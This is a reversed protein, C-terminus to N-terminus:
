RAVEVTITTGKGLDSHIRFRGGIAGARERMILLGWGQPQKANAPDALVMGRGNDAVRLRIRQENATLTVTLKTAQAHKAVNNFAEQAIRFLNLEMEEPLRPFSQRGKVDVTLGTRRAFQTAYWRLAALLGYDNLVPPSLDSMVDRVQVTLQEVLKRAEELSVDVPDDAPLRAALQTQILKLNLNLATLSQGFLDHLNRALEQREREQSRALTKNLTRLMARQQEVEGLLRAQNEEAQKRETIDQTVGAMRIPAGAEDYYVRGQAYIWRVQGDPSRVRCELNSEGSELAARESAALKALDEPLIYQRFFDPPWEAAPETLGFIQNHRLNTHVKGLKLDVDFVGLRAAALALELSEQAQRLVEEAQKRRTIDQIVGVIRTPAGAEDYYIRGQSHIWGVEGDARRVCTELNFEGNGIAQAFVAAAKAHDEPVVLQRFMDLGWETGPEPYGFIQNQRLNVRAKLTKLDLDWTGLRAAELAVELSEQAQRLAEEAQKRELVDAAQRALMDLLRLEREHPEHPERWHTAIMGILRGSRAILPTSQVAVIGSLEYYKHSDSGVLLDSTRVDPVVLREGIRLASASVTSAGFAVMQWYAVAEPHFGQWALLRLQQAEEDLMQLSGFDAGMFAVAAALLPEYLSDINDEEIFLRSLAHLTKTDELERKLQAEARAREVADWIRHAVEETLKREEATWSRPEHQMTYFAAVYRGDKILPVIIAARTDTATYAATAAAGQTLPHAFADAFAVTRGQRLEAILAPGFAALEYQVSPDPMGREDWIAHLTFYAGTTDIEAYGVQDVALHRGLQEAAITIIARAGGVEKLADSLALLFAHREERKRLPEEAQKRETIDTIALLILQLHDLRRGNLLMTRQGIREFTHDVEYGTFVQNAPLIEELLLRLEPIDWQGNGLQYILQGETEPPRVQFTTYFAENATQVRLDPRLVLLADPITHIICEAYEKAEVLAQEAKKNATIDVFTVVVGDIRDDQTHYPHLTVQFWRTPQGSGESQVERELPTLDRLVRQADAELEAYRLNSRLHGIPRGQDPPMLNFLDAARPTYRKIRLARDLFLTAIEIAAFLNQLDGHAQGLEEVKRQLEHNVRRLEENVMQLAENPAPLEEEAIQCEEQRAQRQERAQRLEEKLRRIEVDRERVAASGLGEEDPVNHRVQSRTAETSKM